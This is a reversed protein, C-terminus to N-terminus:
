ASGGMDFDILRQMELAYEMPLGEMFDRVFGFVVMSRARDEPVGRSTLYFLKEQDLRGMRAEHTVSATEENVNVRPISNAVSGDMMLSDCRVAARSSVAGGAVEVGGRFTSVGTGSTVSKSLISSSTRPARHFVRAGADVEQGDSAMVVSVVEGRAGEGELYLSPYKMTVGSGFNGDLWQVFAGAGVRARKTVLNFVNKSWNQLTAYKARSNRAASVEVVAAHLTAKSYLPATCGEVYTAQAGEDLVILTREFQGFGELNIRFYTHLPFPVRVGEPVHIFTGGSWVAANLAAFKNDDAPVLKGMHERVLKPELRVADDMSMYKVGLRDLERKAREFVVESDYQLEVGSLLKMEAESVGLREFTSKIDAPVDEWKRSKGAPKSYYVIDKFDLRSLGPGFGPMPAARFAEFGRLRSELVWDPEDKFESIQRVKGRTLPGSVSFESRKRSSFWYKEERDKLFPFEMM